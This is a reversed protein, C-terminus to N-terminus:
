IQRFQFWNHILGSEIIYFYLSGSIWVNTYTLISTHKNHKLNNSLLNCVGFVKNYLKYACPYKGVCGATVRIETVKQQILFSLSFVIVM